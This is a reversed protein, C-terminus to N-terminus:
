SKKKFKKKVVRPGKSRNEDATSFTIGKSDLFDRLDDLSVRLGYNKMVTKFQSLYIPKYLLISTHLEDHTRIANCM